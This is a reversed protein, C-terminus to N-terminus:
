VKFVREIRTWKNSCGNEDFDHCNYFLGHNVAGNKYTNNCMWFEGYKTNTEKHLIHYTAYSTKFHNVFIEIKNAKIDDIYPSVCVYYTEGLRINDMLSILHNSSYDDIDLINSFLNITNNSSHLDNVVLDDLKKNITFIEANPALSKCHFAARKIAAESPEILTISEVSDKGYKELFLITALGQGCGWDVINVKYQFQQPFPVTLASIFKARHMNGYSKLYTYLDQESQIIDVGRGQLRNTGAHEIAIQRINDFSCGIKKIIRCYDTDEEILLNRNGSIHSRSESKANISDILDQICSFVNDVDAVNISSLNPISSLFPYQNHSICVNIKSTFDSYHSPHLSDIVASYYNLFTTIAKKNSDEENEIATQLLQCVKDFRGILDEADIPHPYIFHLGAKIRSNIKIGKEQSIGYLQAMASQSNLRECLDLLILLFSKSNGDDFDFNALIDRKLLVFKEISRRANVLFAYNSSYLAYFGEINDDVFKKLEGQGTANIFLEDFINM